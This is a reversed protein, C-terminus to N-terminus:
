NVARTLVIHDADRALENVSGARAVAEADALARSVVMRGGVALVRLVDQLLAGETGAGAVVGRMSRERLPVMTDALLRNVGEAESQEQVGGNIVILELGPLMRGIERGHWGAEGLLLAYGRGDRLGLYAALRLAENDGEQEAGAGAVSRSEPLPSTDTRLDALGARIRYQERCVPCGLAGELIRRNSLQEALVILGADPGCKPCVLLDTLVLHM